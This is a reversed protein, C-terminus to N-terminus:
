EGGSFRGEYKPAKAEVGVNTLCHLGWAEQLSARLLIWQVTRSTPIRHMYLSPFVLFVRALTVSKVSRSCFADDVLWRNSFVLASQGISVNGSVPARLELSLLIWTCVLFVGHLTCRGFCDTVVNLSVVRVASVPWLFTGSDNVPCPSLCVVRPLHAASVTSARLNCRFCEISGGDRQHYFMRCFFLKVSTLSQIERRWHGPEKKSGKKVHYKDPRQSVVTPWMGRFPVWQRQHGFGQSRLASSLAPRELKFSSVQIVKKFWKKGRPSFHNLFHNREGGPFQFFHNWDSKPRIQTGLRLFHNSESKKEKHALDRFHNWDSKKRKSHTHPVNASDSPFFPDFFTNSFTISSLSRFIIERGEKFSSVQIVKQLWKKPDSKQIVKKSSKKRDSKEIM